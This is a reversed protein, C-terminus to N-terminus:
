IWDLAKALDDGNDSVLQAIRNAFHGSGGGHNREVLDLRTHTQVYIGVGLREPCTCAVGGTM